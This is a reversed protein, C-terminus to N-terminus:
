PNPSLIRREKVNQALLRDTEPLGHFKERGV